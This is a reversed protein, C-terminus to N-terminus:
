MKLSRPGFRRQWDSNGILSLWGHCCGALRRRMCIQLRLRFGNALVDNGAGCGGTGAMRRTGKRAHLDRHSQIESTYQTVIGLVRVPWLTVTEDEALSMCCGQKIGHKGLGAIERWVQKLCQALQVAREFAM